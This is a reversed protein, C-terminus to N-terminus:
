EKNDKLPSVLITLGLENNDWMKVWPFTDEPLEFLREELPRIPDKSVVCGHLKTAPHIKVMRGTDNFYVLKM